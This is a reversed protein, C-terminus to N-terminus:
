ESQQGMFSIYRIVTGGIVRNYYLYTFWLCYTCPIYTLGTWGTATVNPYFHRPIKSQIAKGHHHLLEWLLIYQLCPVNLRQSWLYIRTTNWYSNPSNTYTCLQFSTGAPSLLIKVWSETCVLAFFMTGVFQISVKHFFLSQILKASTLLMISKPWPM